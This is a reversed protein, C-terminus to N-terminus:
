KGSVRVSTRRPKTTTTTSKPKTTTATKTGTSHSPENVLVNLSVKTRKPKYTSRIKPKDPM